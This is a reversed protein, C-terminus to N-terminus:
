WHCLFLARLRKRKPDQWKGDKYVRRLYYDADFEPIEVLKDDQVKGSLVSVGICVGGDNLQAYIAM